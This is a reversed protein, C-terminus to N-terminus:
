HLRYDSHYDVNKIQTLKMQTYQHVHSKGETQCVRICGVEVM